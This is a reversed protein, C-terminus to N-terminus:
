LSSSDVGLLLIKRGLWLNAVLMVCALLFLATSLPLFSLLQKGITTYLAFLAFVISRTTAIAKGGVTQVLLHNWAPQWLGDLAVFLVYLGALIVWHSLFFASIMLLLAQLITAIVWSHGYSKKDALRHGFYLVLMMGGTACTALIGALFSPMHAYTLVPFIVLPLYAVHNAFSRYLLITRINANGLVERLAHMTTSLYRHHFSGEQKQSATPLERLQFTLFVLMSASLVDLGALITYGGDAFFYLVGTAVLPTLLGAAQEAFMFSGIVKGFSQQKGLVRLNEELFAQGTGSWFSWYFAACLSALIFGWFSPFLFILVAGLCNFSVSLLLSLRRGSVDAFVSTPLELIWTFFTAVNAILTIEVLGLGTHSYLLTIVPVLFVVGALLNIWRQLSINCEAQQHLSHM